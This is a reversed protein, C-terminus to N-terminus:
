SFCLGSPLVTRWSSLPAGSCPMSFVVRRGSYAKPWLICSLGFWAMVIAAIAQVVGFIHRSTKQDWYPPEFPERWDVFESKDNRYKGNNQGCCGANLNPGEDLALAGKQRKVGDIYRTRLINEWYFNGYNYFVAPLSASLSGNIGCCKKFSKWVDWNIGIRHGTSDRGNYPAAGGSNADGYRQWWIYKYNINCRAISWQIDVPVDSVLVVKAPKQPVFTSAEAGSIIRM